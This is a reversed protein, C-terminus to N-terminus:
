LDSVMYGTGRVTRILPPLGPLDIKDRLYKLYVDVVNTSPENAGGWVEKLLVARSVPVQPKRMLFELLAFERQTLEIRRQGRRVFMEERHVALDGCRSMSPVAPRQVRALLVRVRALLELYSFPKSLCDSAGSELAPLIGQTRDRGTLVLIPLNQSNQRLRRLVELGDMDPLNLDLLLLDTEENVGSIAATGCPAFSVTYGEAVLIRELFLSLMEDDDAILIHGTQLRSQEQTDAGKALLDDREVSGM